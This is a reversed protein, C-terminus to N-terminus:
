RPEEPVGLAQRVTPAAPAIEPDLRALLDRWGSHMAIASQVREAGADVDGGQALALGAWFLLEGNAPALDAAERYREAAEEHRGEGVLDDGETAVAYADALDLLRRLEGLPDAHDEVRLEVTRQWAEGEAPAVVLAASQRGRVDGGAAEGVDLAALLRRALPGEANEFAEAMAPWVGESAMMNAQTTFGEGEGHGAFPICGDGTHVAVAGDANVVAVQRYHAQDDAALLEDLADRPGQGARLLGLLRPGYAPEAISQTAVAGVGPEAWSVISGVSFWHSQVAVGLEGTEADRAVISYTGRRPFAGLVAGMGANPAKGTM